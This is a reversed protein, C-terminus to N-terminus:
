SELDMSRRSRNDVLPLYFLRLILGYVTIDKGVSVQSFYDFLSFMECGRELDMVDSISGKSM